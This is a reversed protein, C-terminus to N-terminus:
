HGFRDLCAYREDSLRWGILRLNLSVRVYEICIYIYIDRRTLRVNTNKVPRYLKTHATLIDFARNCLFYNSRIRRQARLKIM